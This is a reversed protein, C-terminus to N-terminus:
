CLLVQYLKQYLHTQEIYRQHITQTCKIDLRSQISYTIYILTMMDSKQYMVYYQSCLMHSWSKVTTVDYQERKDLRSLFFFLSFLSFNFYSFLFSKFLLLSSPFDESKLDELFKEKWIDVSGEQMYTLAWQVQKEVLVKRMRIRIYLKYIIVFGAIKSINTDFVAVLAAIQTQM